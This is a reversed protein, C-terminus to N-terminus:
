AVRPRRDAVIGAGLTALAILGALLTILRGTVLAPDHFRLSVARAGAHLPVGILNYDARYAPAQRGDVTATWGPYYNESVLLASGEPAPASLLIDARGPAVNSTTTTISPPEPPTQVTRTQVQASTDFVALRAPDFRPDLV